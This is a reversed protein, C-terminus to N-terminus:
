SNKKWVRLYDVSFTSPLEQVRPLGFWDPMTESDFNITLAQHWHTNEITRILVGDVYYKLASEDWELGYVHFDDALNFPAKWEGYKDWHKDGDQPTRWVHVNTHVIDEMGPVAAGIEFVDIETSWDDDSYTFWFSSSGRSNMPRAKVEFYGYLITRKSQVAGCTYTHYGDPLNPLDEYKMVINLWGNSVSVNAPNFYGPERGKWGPNFSWWKTSNLKSGNFEDSFASVFQWDAESAPGLITYSEKPKNNDKDNKCGAFCFFIVALLFIGRNSM